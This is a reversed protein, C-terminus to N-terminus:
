FRNRMAMWLARGYLRTQTVPHKADIFTAPLYAPLEGKRARRESRWLSRAEALKARDGTALAEAAASAVQNEGQGAGLVRAAAAVVESEGRGAERADIIGALSGTDLAGAAVATSLEDLVPHGRSPEPLRAVADRWWQFRMAAIMAERAAEPIHRLEADFGYLALLSRRKAEPAFLAAVFRAPERRKVESQVHAAADNPKM